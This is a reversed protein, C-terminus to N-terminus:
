RGSGVRDRQIRDSGAISWDAAGAWWVGQIMGRTTIRRSLGIVTKPEYLWVAPADDIIVQYARTYHAFLTNLDRSQSASDLEADFVTSEYSGYNRGDKRRAAEATWDERIGSPDATVNWAGLATDFNRASERAAFAQFEMKEIEARVGLRLLESQIMVAMKNRAGSSTPVIMTFALKRGKRVRVGDSGRETWGLSDLIAAARATDYPIQVLAGSTTPLASITPGVSVKGLTDFVSRVMSARDIAMTLARRLERNAFLQHPRRQDSPDRLNFQLFAYDMGPLTVVRLKPNRAVEDANDAHLFDFVDAEGGKLKTLAGLYDPSVSWIVRDLSPRGRYNATDAAIELSSGQTWRVFRFRGSGVPDTRGVRERLSDNSVTSFVHEPLILMLRTADYFQDPTRSHFWFVSTLSDKVTVSDVNRLADSMPNGLARSTYLSHTYRVDTARVPVGDHWRARPNIHFAISLSDASWQWSDALAPTFGHDGVINLQPGIEALYDYILETVQRAQVNSALPPFLADPDTTAAIVVTGGIRDSANSNGRGGCACLAAVLAACALHKASGQFSRM